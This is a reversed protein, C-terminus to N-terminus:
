NEHERIEEAEPNSCATLLLLSSVLWISKMTM